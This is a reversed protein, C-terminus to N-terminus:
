PRTLYLTACGCGGGNVQHIPAAGSQSAAHWLMALSIRPNTDAIRESVRSNIKNEIFHRTKLVKGWYDRGLVRLHTWDLQNTKDSHTNHRGCHNADTDHDQRKSLKADRAEVCRDVSQQMVRHTRNDRGVRGGGCDSTTRTAALVVHLLRM